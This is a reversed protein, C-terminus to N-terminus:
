DEIGHRKMWHHLVFVSWRQYWTDLPVPSDRTVADFREGWTGGLWREFPFVFGKKPQNAVWAPIEPVADLLMQKGPRLRLSAPVAVAQELFARDVFPVRLELGHAMSMVDSDRLLQNRMYLSLEMASVEDEITPSAPFPAEAPESGRNGPAHRAALKAAESSTFIGRFCRYAGLPSPETVLFAGLRRLRNSSSSELLSGLATRLCMKGLIRSLRLLKPVMTFSRYGSFVEDGGLGSLVVKMDHERAFSSVTFTNLGDISPQDMSQLFGDFLRQGAENDLSMEHHDTSFHAATRKAVSAESLEPDDVGISFTKIREHGTSRALAVLATSDLGGSLFIGVPVDSVFHRRVSDLLAERVHRVPDGEFSATPFALRWHCGTTARGDKWLLWHGAELSLADEVLTLPEPVSGTEFYERVAASALRRSVLGAEQLAKLESAFVLRGGGLSYYLPKIGLPDRAILCTRDQSDWIAFAYMGRLRSFMATGHREHLRLLVETDSQTRFVAGEAVLEDRLQRFNYIEGNFVITFRGDPTSMPQHGAPSLDLIALRTHAFGACGSPDTWTGSDDPGRHRLSGKLTELWQSIRAIRSGGTMTEVVGAIGCM